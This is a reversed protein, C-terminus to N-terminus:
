KELVGKTADTSMGKVTDTSLRKCLETTPIKHEDWERIAETGKVAAAMKNVKKGDGTEKEPKEPM